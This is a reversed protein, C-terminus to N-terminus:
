GDAAEHPLAPTRSPPPGGGSDSGLRSGLDFDVTRGHNSNVYVMRGDADYRIINDPSSDALSRYQQESEILRQDAM